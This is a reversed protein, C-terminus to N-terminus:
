FERVKKKKEAVLPGNKRKESREKLLSALWPTACSARPRRIGQHTAFRSLSLSLHPSLVLSLQPSLLSVFADVEWRAIALKKKPCREAGGFANRARKRGLPRRPASLGLTGEHNLRRPSRFFMRFRRLRAMARRTREEERQQQIAAPTCVGRQQQEPEEGRSSGSAHRKHAEKRLMATSRPTSAGRSTSALSQHKGLSLLLAGRVM